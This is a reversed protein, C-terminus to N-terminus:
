YKITPAFAFLREAMLAALGSIRGFLVSAKNIPM